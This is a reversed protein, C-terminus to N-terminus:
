KLELKKARFGKKQVTTKNCVTCKYRLDAKKSSKKNFMKWSGMAKRSYKGKNGAGAKGRGRNKLRPLAGKKLASRDKKKATSIVQKTHKKCKPCYRKINKNLKM